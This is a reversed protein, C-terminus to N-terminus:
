KIKPLTSQTVHRLLIFCHQNGEIAPTDLLIHMQQEDQKSTSFKLKNQEKLVQQDVALVSLM